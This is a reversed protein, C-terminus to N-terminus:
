GHLANDLEDPASPTLYRALRTQLCGVRVVSGSGGALVSIFRWYVQTSTYLNTYKDM